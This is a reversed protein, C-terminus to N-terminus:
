AVANWGETIGDVPVASPCAPLADRIARIEEVGAVDDATQLVINEMVFHLSTGHKLFERYITRRVEPDKPLMFLSCMIVGELAPLQPLLGLLQLYCNPFQLENISLRFLLNRRQVYDRLVLNQVPVPIRHGGFEANTCYGRFGERVPAAVSERM